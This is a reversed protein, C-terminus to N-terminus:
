PQHKKNQKEQEKEADSKKQQPPEDSLLDALEGLNELGSFHFPHSFRRRKHTLIQDMNIKKPKMRVMLTGSIIARNINDM